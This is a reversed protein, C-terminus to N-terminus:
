DQRVAAGLWVVHSTQGKARLSWGNAAALEVTKTWLEDKTAKRYLSDAGDKILIGFKTKSTDIEWRGDEGPPTRMTEKVLDQYFMLAGLEAKTNVLEAMKNEVEAFSAGNWSLNLSPNRQSKRHASHFQSELHMIPFLTVLCM